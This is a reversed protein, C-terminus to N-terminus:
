QNFSPTGVTERKVDECVGKSERQGREEEESDRLLCLSQTLDTCCQLRQMSGRKIMRSQNDANLSFLQTIEPSILNKVCCLM